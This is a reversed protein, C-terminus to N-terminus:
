DSYFDEPVYVVRFVSCKHKLRDEPLMYLELFVSKGRPINLKEKKRKHDRFLDLIAPLLRRNSSSCYFPNFSYHPPLQSTSPPFKLSPINRFVFSFFSFFIKRVSRLGLRYVSIPYMQFAAARCRKLSLKRGSQNYLFSDNCYYSHLPPISVQGAM